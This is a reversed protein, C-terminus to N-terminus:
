LSLFSLVTSLNFFFLSVFMGTLYLCEAPLVLERKSRASHTCILLPKNDDLQINYKEKYYDAVSQKYKKGDAERDIMYTSPKGLALRKILYHDFQKRYTTMVYIGAVQDGFQKPNRLLAKFQDQDILRKTCHLWFRNSILAVTTGISAQYAHVSVGSYVDLDCGYLPDRTTQDILINRVNTYGQELLCKKILVNVAQGPFQSADTLESVFSITVTVPQAANPRSPLEITQQAQQLPRIFCYLSTNDYAFIADANYLKMADTVASIRHSRERLQDM